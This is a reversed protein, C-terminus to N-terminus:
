MTSEPFKKKIRRFHEAMAHANTLADQGLATLKISFFALHRVM